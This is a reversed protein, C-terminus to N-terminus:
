KNIMEELKEIRIGFDHKEEIIARDTLIGFAQNAADIPIIGDAFAQMIADAKEVMTGNEPFKFEYTPYTAKSVPFLRAMSDKLLQADPKGFVTERGEQTEEMYQHRGMGVTLCFKYFDKEALETSDVGLEEMLAELYITRKNKGRAKGSTNGAKFSTDNKKKSM